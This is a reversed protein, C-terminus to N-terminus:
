SNVHGCYDCVYKSKSFLQTHCHTLHDDEDIIEKGCNKCKRSFDYHVSSSFDYVFSPYDCIGCKYYAGGKTHGIPWGKIPNGDKDCLLAGCRKCYATKDPNALYAQINEILKDTDLVPEPKPRKHEPLQGSGHHYEASQRALDKPDINYLQERDKKLKQDIYKNIDAITVNGANMAETVNNAYLREGETTLDDRADERDSLKKRRAFELLDEETLKSTYESSIQACNVRGKNYALVSEWIPDATTCVRPFNDIQEFPDSACTGSRIVGDHGLWLSCCVIRQGPDILKFNEYVRCIPTHTKDLVEITQGSSDITSEVVTESQPLSVARGVRIPANGHLVRGVDAVGELAAKYREFNKQCTKHASHYRDLSVGVSVRYTEKAPDYTGPAFGYGCSIDIIDKFQKMLEVLRDSYIRGNTIFSLKLLLIGRKRLGRIIYEVTDLCLSPEGGTLILSDIMDAQDLFQDIYTLDIDADMANGRMCHACAMNCRRTLEIIVSGFTLKNM